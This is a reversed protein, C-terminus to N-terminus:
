EALDRLIKALCPADLMSDQGHGVLRDPRNNLGLFAFECKLFIEDMAPALRADFTEPEFPNLSRQVLEPARSASWDASATTIQGELGHTLMSGIRRTMGFISFGTKATEGMM